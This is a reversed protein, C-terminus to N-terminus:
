LLSRIGPVVSHKGIKMQDRNEGYKKKKGDKLRLQKSKTMLGHALLVTQFPVHDFLLGYGIRMIIMMRFCVM